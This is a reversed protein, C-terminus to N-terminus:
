KKKVKLPKAKKLPGAKRLPHKAESAPKVKRKKVVKKPTAVAKLMTSLIESPDVKLEKAAERAMNEEAKIKMKTLAKILATAVSARREDRTAANAADALMLRGTWTDRKLVNIPGGCSKYTLTVAAAAMQASLKFATMLYVAVEKGSGMAFPKRELETVTLGTDPSVRFHYANKDTVILVSAGKSFRSYVAENSWHKEIDLLGAKITSIITSSMKVNGCRGIAEVFEGRFKVRGDMLEIKVQEDVHKVYEKAGTEPNIRTTTKRSDAALSRGDFTVISM